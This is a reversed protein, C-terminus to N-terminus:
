LLETLSLLSSTPEILMCGINISFVVVIHTLQHMFWILVLLFSTSLVINLYKYVQLSLGAIQNQVELNASKRSFNFFSLCQFPRVDGRNSKWVESLKKLAM